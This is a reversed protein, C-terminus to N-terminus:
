ISKWTKNNIIAYITSSSVNYIECLEKATKEPVLSRIKIVDEKKLKGISRKNAAQEKMTAWRCNSPEYNGNNNIRDVSHKPTPKFGM